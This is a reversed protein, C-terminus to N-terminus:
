ADATADTRPSPPPAESRNAWWGRVEDERWYRRRNHYVPRPFGSGKLWRHVSMDSVGGCIERVTRATIMAAEAM